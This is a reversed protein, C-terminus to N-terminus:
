YTLDNQGGWDGDAKLSFAQGSMQTGFFEGSMQTIYNRQIPVNSFVREMVTNGNGDEATVTMKLTGTEEHPFTYVEFVGPKGNMDATVGINVTQRSNVNGYGTTADFTSSGGTYYFKMNKVENPINDNTKLRFMAVSRTLTLDVTQSQGTVTLKGYYYFTDSIINNSFTIKTPSSVTPNGSGNHAIVVLDYIGEALTLTVAGFDEAGKEQNVAKVKTDNQFIAYSIRSCVLDVNDVSKTSTVNEFPMMELNNIRLTVNGQTTEETKDVKMEEDYAKECATLLLAFVVVIMWRTTM